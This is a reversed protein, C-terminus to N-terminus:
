RGEGHHAVAGARRAAAHDHRSAPPLVEDHDTRRCCESQRDARGRRLVHWNRRGLPLVDGAHHQHAGRRQRERRRLLDRVDDRHGLDGGLRGAVLRLHRYRPRKRRQQHADVDRCTGSAAADPPEAVGWGPQCPWADRISRVWQGRKRSHGDRARCWELAGPRGDDDRGDVCPAGPAVNGSTATVAGMAGTGGLRGGAVTIASQHSANLLLTGATVTTAGGYSNTGNFVATGAGLKNIGAKNGTGGNSIPGEIRLDTAQPGDAVVFDHTGPTLILRDVFTGFYFGANAIVATEAASSTATLTGNLTLSDMNLDGFTIEGGQMTLNEVWLSFHDLIDVKGDQITLDGIALSYPIFDTRLFTVSGDSLVLVDIKGTASGGITVSATGNASSGDGVTTMGTYTNAVGGGALGGMVVSGATMTVNRSGGAEGIGHFRITGTVMLDANLLIPTFLVAGGTSEITADEGANDFVLSGSGLRDITNSAALNDEEIVLAGISVTVLDPIIITRNATLPEDIVAVDGPLNPYGVGAPGEVVAWNAPTNWNGGAAVQWRYTSAEVAHPAALSVILM